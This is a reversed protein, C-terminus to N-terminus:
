LSIRFLKWALVEGLLFVVVVAILLSFKYGYKVLSKILVNAKVAVMIVACNNRKKV